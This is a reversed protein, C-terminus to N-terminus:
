KKKVDCLNRSFFGLPQRADDVCQECVAGVAYNPNHQTYAKTTRGLPATKLPHALLVAHALAATADM